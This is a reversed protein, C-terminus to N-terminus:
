FPRGSRLTCVCIAVIGIHYSWVNVPAYLCVVRTYFAKGQDDHINPVLSLPTSMLGLLSSSFEGHDDEQIEHRGEGLLGAVGCLRGVANPLLCLWIAQRIFLSREAALLLPPLQPPQPSPGPFVSDSGQRWHYTGRIYPSRLATITDDDAQVQSM